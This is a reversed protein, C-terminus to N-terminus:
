LNKSPNTRVINKNVLRPNCPKAKLTGRHVGRMRRAFQQAKSEAPDYAEPLVLQTADGDGAYYGKDGMFLLYKHTAAGENYPILPFSIVGDVLTGLVGADKATELDTQAAYYYGWSCFAFDGYGWDFGLSQLPIYVGEPDTADVVFFSGPTACDDDAFPYVNNSYADIVRYLGPTETSEKVEVEYTMAEGGFMPALIDDTWLGIGLSQWPSKGGGYFEFPLSRSEKVEGEHISCIVVQLEGTMEEDLAINNYGVVLDTAELEGEAIADAVAAADADAEVIAAKITKADAGVTMLNVQAFNQGNQNLIGNFSAEFSYDPVYYGDILITEPDYGFSGLSLYYALCMDFRGYLPDYTCPFRESLDQGQWASVDGVYIDEGNSYQLGIKQPAVSVKGTEPNYDLYLSMGTGWNDVKFQAVTPDVLNKRYSIKLGPDAGTWYNVYIYTCTGKSDPMPFEEEPLGGKVWEDLTSYWPTWPAPICLDLEVASAGYPTAETEEISLMVTYHEDYELKEPDYQIKIDAATSGEAFVATEPVTIAGEPVNESFEAVVKVTKAAGANARSLQYVFNSETKSLEISQPAESSFFLESTGASSAPEYEYGDSCAAMMAIAALAFVGKKINKIM